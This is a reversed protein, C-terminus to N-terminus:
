NIIGNCLENDRSSWAPKSLIRAECHRSPKSAIQATEITVVCNLIYYISILSWYTVEQQRLTEGSPVRPGLLRANMKSRRAATPDRKRRRRIDRCSCSYECEADRETLSGRGVHQLSNKNRLQGIINHTTYCVLIALENHM